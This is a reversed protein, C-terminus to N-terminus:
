PKARCRARRELRRRSNSIRKARCDPTVGPSTGTVTIYDTVPRNGSSSTTGGGASVCNCFLLSLTVLVLVIISGLRHVKRRADNSRRSGWGIVVGPLFLWLAYPLSCRAARKSLKAKFARRRVEASSKGHVLRGRFLGNAASKSAIEMPMLFPTKLSLSNQRGTSARLCGCRFMDPYTSGGRLSSLSRVLSLSRKAHHFEAALIPLLRPCLLAFAAQICPLPESQSFATERSPVV